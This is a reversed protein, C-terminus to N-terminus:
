FEPLQEGRTGGIKTCGRVNPAHAPRTFSSTDQEPRSRGKTRKMEREKTQFSSGGLSPWHISVTLNNEDKKRRERNEETRKTGGTYSERREKGILWGRDHKRKTRGGV